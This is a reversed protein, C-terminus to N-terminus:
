WNVVNDADFKYADAIIDRAKELDAIYADVDAVNLKPADGMLRHIEKFNEDTIPSHPNFQSNLAFGKMESWHKAVAYFQDANYKGEAIDKLDGDDHSITDNIYHIVTAAISKEWYLLAQDRYKKLEATDEPSWQDINTGVNKNIIARGNIFAIQAAASFDTPNANSKTGRDRKAANGSNGFNYESKLDIGNQGDFDNYSGKFADRGSKGAIEDDSYELYNIAAGFYGYAEDWKHEMDTYNKDADVEANQAPSIETNGNPNNFLLEDMYDDAGQSLSVAGNLHKQILQALDLGEPTVYLKTIEISGDNHAAFIKTGGNATEVQQKILDFYYEVLGNPTKEFTGFDTWGVFSEGDNWTKNMPSADSGAIKGGAGAVTKKSSIEGLNSQAVGKGETFTFDSGHFSEDQALIFGEAKAFITNRDEVSADTTLKGLLSKSEAMAAHRSTQGSYSVSSTGENVFAYLNKGATPEMDTIAVEIAQEVKEGASDTATVTLAVKQDAEQEFNLANFAKLKLKGEVVEFRGDSVTYNLEAVEDSDDAFTVGTIEAGLTDEMVSASEVTITPAKNSPTTPTTPTTPTEPTNVTNNDSSSGGCGTLGVTAALIATALLSKRLAM